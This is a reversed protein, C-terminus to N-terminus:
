AKRFSRRHWQTSFQAVTPISADNDILRPCVTTTSNLVNEHHRHWLRAPRPNTARQGFGVGSNPPLICIPNQLKVVDNFMRAAFALTAAAVDMIPGAAEVWTRFAAIREKAQATSKLQVNPHSSSNRGRGGGRRSQNFINFGHMRWVDTFPLGGM